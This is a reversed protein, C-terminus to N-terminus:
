EQEEVAADGSCEVAIISGALAAVIRATQEVSGGRLRDLTDATTHVRALSRLTGRSLTAAAWGRDSFAVSDFLVGPLSRRVRVQEGITHRRALTAMALRFVGDDRTITCTLEGNDDVGDCNIAVGREPVTRQALWGRAGAMGLEEASTLLVGVPLDPAILTAARIVTAVGSANDLAGTGGGTHHVWSLVLPLAGIIGIWGLVVVWHLKAANPAFALVALIGLWAALTSVVGAARTLLSIPQGKTDLHAVLWVKPLGRSGELNVGHRRMIPLGMIGYRGLWWGLVGIACLTAATALVDGKGFAGSGARTAVWLAAIGLLLGVTPTGWLGPFASYEFAREAVLFGASTLERACLERIAQESASGAPRGYAGIRRLLIEGDSDAM